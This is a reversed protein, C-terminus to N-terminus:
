LVVYNFRKASKVSNDGQLTLYWRLFIHHHIIQILISVVIWWRFFFMFTYFTVYIDVGVDNAQISQYILHKGDLTMHTIDNTPLKWQM